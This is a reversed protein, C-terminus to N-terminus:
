PIQSNMIRIFGSSDLNQTKPQAALNRSVIKKTFVMMAARSCYKFDDDGLPM